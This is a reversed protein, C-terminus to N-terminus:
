PFRCFDLLFAFAVVDDDRGREVDVFEDVLVLHEFVGDVYQLFGVVFRLLREFLLVGFEKSKESFLFAFNVPELALGGVDLVFEDLIEYMLIGQDNPILDFELSRGGGVVRAVWLGVWDLLLWVAQEPVAADTLIQPAFQFLYALIM